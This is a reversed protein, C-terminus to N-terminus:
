EEQKDQTFSGIKKRGVENDVVQDLRAARETLAKDKVITGFKGHRWEVSPREL